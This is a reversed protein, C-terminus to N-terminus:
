VSCAKINGTKLGAIVSKARMQPTGHWNPSWVEYGGIAYAFRVIEQIDQNDFTLNPIVAMYVGSLCDAQLEGLVTSGPHFRFAVQMGHAYEHAVLYALAADGYRYYALNQIGQGIYITHNRPCYGANNADIAGCPSVFGRPINYYVKPKAVNGHIQNIGAVVGRIVAQRSLNAYAVEAAGVIVVVLFGIIVLRYFRKM